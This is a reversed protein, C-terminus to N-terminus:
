RLLGRIEPVVDGLSVGNTADLGIEIGEAAVDRTIRNGDGDVFRVDENRGNIRILIKQTVDGDPTDLTITATDILVQGTQLADVEPIDDYLTYTWTGNDALDFHGYSVRESNSVTVYANEPQNEVRITGQAVLNGDETVIGTFDGSFDIEDPNNEVQIRLELPNSRVKNDEDGDGVKVWLHLNLVGGPIAEYDLSERSKLVLNYTDGVGEVIEFNRLIASLGAPNVESIKWTPNTLPATTTIGSILM